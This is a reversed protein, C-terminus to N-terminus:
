RAEVGQRLHRSALSAFRKLRSGFKRVQRLEVLANIIGNGSPQELALFRGSGSADPKFAIRPILRKLHTAPARPPTANM